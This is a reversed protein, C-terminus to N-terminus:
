FGKCFLKYIKAYVKFKRKLNGKEISKLLNLHQLIIYLYYKNCIKNKM